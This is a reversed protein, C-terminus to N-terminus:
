YYPLTITTESGQEFDEIRINLGERGPSVDVRYNGFEYSGEELQQQDTDEGFYSSIVQSQLESFFRRELDQQFNAMPDRTYGRYSPRSSEEKLTNQANASSLMWQYNMYNGGFAPNKASYVFDQSQANGSVLALGGIFFFLSVINKM